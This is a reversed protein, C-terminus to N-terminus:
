TRCPIFSRVLIAAQMVMRTQGEEYQSVAEFPVELATIIEQRSLLVIYCLMMLWIM